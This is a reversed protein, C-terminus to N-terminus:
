GSADPRERGEHFIGRRRVNQEGRPPGPPRTVWGPGETVESLLCTGSHLKGGSSTMGLFWLSILGSPERTEATM